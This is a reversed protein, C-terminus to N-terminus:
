AAVLGFAVPAETRALAADGGFAPCWRQYACSKCLATPRPQFDGTVCAREVAKWVAATRTAVFRATQETPHAEIIEGTSLYLLRIAAPLRGFVQHCLLAYFHVGSMSRQEYNSSPARGTKYDSVVLEGARLELRDIIGRLTLNGVTASLWLELGIAQVADPDEMTRYRAVLDRCAAEFAMQQDDSLDLLQLDPLERYEAIAQETAAAFVADDRGGAPATFAIQLARHVLSGRTTAVTPPDGLREISAFRFALPCSTFSEVRSPSLSTPVDFV